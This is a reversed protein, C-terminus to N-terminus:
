EIVEDARAFLTAPIELGLAKATTFNIVLDFRTPLQVPLTAPKDGKLIRGAYVGIQHYAWTLEAGYSMLGGARTYRRFPYIAPLSHRAALAVLQGGLSTFLADPSIMIANARQRVASSFAADLDREARAQVIILELGLVRASASTDRIEDDVADTDPNVLLAFTSGAVIAKLLELRKSVLETTYLSVGTANGNPRNLSAVMGAQAPDIGVVFLIPITTTAKMAAQASVMGGTAAILAVRRQVLENALAPLKSYDGEAWRYDMRFDRGELLHESSLGARFEDVLAAFRQLSTTNLFGIVPMPRQVKSDGRQGSAESALAARPELPWAVAAGGLLTMFERRGIDFM